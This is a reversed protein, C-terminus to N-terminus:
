RLCQGTVWGGNKRIIEYIKYNCANKNCNFKHMSKRRIFDTTSGVYLDKINLDKCVIKYIVTNSYNVSLRPM